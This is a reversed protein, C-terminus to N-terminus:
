LHGYYEEMNYPKIELLFRYLAKKFLRINQLNKIEIPLSNYLKISSYYAGNESINLRSYHLLLELTICIKPNM